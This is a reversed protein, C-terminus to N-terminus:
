RQPPVFSQAEILDDVDPSLAFELFADALRNADGSTVFVLPRTLPYSGSVVGARSAAVGDAALLKIPTGQLETRVPDLFQNGAPTPAGRQLLDGLLDPFLELGAFAAAGLLAYYATIRVLLSM